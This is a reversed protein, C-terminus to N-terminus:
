ESTARPVIIAPSITSLDQRQRRRDRARRFRDAIVGFLTRLSLTQRAAFSVGKESHPYCSM